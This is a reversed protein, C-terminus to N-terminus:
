FSTFCASCCFVIRRRNFSPLPVSMMAAAVPQVISWTSAKKFDRLRWGACYPMVDFGRAGASCETPAKEHAVSQGRLRSLRLQLGADVVPAHLAHIREARQCQGSRSSRYTRAQRPLHRALEKPRASRCPSRITRAPRATSTRLRRSMSRSPAPSRSSAGTRAIANRCSPRASACSKRTSTTASCSRTKSAAIPM